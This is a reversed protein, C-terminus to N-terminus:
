VGDAKLRRAQNLLVTVPDATNYNKLGLPQNVETAHNWLYDTSVISGFRASCVPVLGDSEGTNFQSAIGLLNGVVFGLPFSLNTYSGVPGGKGTWSYLLTRYTAPTSTGSVTVQRDEYAAGSTKCDAGLGSASGPALSADLQQNLEASGASSLSKQAGLADQPLAFGSVLNTIFGSANLAFLVADVLLSGGPLKQVASLLTGVDDSLPAGRLPAAITTISAVEDPHLAAVIRSAQGGQSHAILNVKKAGTIMEVQQVAKYLEDGRVADSEWSSLTATYVTAGHDRLPQVMGYWYIGIAKDLNSLIDLPNLTDAGVEGFGIKDTGAVGHVLIIPYRTAASTADDSNVNDAFVGNSFLVGAAVLALKIQRRALVPKAADARDRSRFQTKM